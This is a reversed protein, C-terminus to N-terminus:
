FESELPEREQRPGKKEDGGEGGEAERLTGPKASADFPLIWPSPSFLKSEAEALNVQPDIARQYPRGNLSIWSDVHVIPHIVGEQEVENKLHRAYQWIFQPRQVMKGWQFHNVESRPDAEFTTGDRPDTVWVRLKGRKDRLKMHWSFYHGEETWSVDGPYLWHRLPVIAQVGLYVVVFVLAARGSRGPDSKAAEPLPGDAKERFFKRPWDPDDFLTAAAIMLFPFVGINFILSNTLNFALILGFAWYRTKKFWLLFGISLDFALGGWSFFYPAWSAAFVPGLVPTTAVHRLWGRMPEGQVWDANLKAIGGFFYIVFIQSRLLFLQWYPVTPPKPKWRNDLSAWRGGDAILMLFTLLLIAYYHNNYYAKDLLFVYGFALLFVLCSLRYLLGLLIGLAAIGMVVFVAYFIKEPLPKIFPFFQYTFHFSPELYYKFYRGMTLSYLAQWIMLAGFLIRLMGLSAADIPAHLRQSIGRIAGGM